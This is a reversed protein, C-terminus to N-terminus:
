HLVFQDITTGTLALIKDPTLSTALEFWESPLGADRRAAAIAYRLAFQVTIGLNYAPEGTAKSRLVGAPNSSKQLLRVRMDQPIDKASPPKYNWTRFNTLAGTGRDYRLEELLHYGLAMVFAGEIQGIDLLPNMSEGTDELIDVRIPQVQGTLVDIELEVACLAWVTYGRLDARKANYSASLDIRRQYCTQVIAEWPATRNDDRVPRIRELLTECARRASYAVLDTSISGGEIFANPSGNSTHAKVKVLALPIGLTHAVVQAVKTNVGQGIEPSGITVAVSGDVHYISVWANMGGFYRIPHGMPVIAIGRKKWRNTENYRDVAAKRVKFDVQEYFTPLLTAISSGPEMNALRVVQPSLGTVFAVHEMITEITAISEATGPSRLWTTSPSDSLVGRLRLRWSDDSYCNRFAERFLMTMAEYQSAGLDEHYTNSLRVIRGDAPRVDVEYECHGGIRKGIAQMTTEFPLVMRVPRRSRYAALACASAVWAGRSLKAGYSGGVPRVIVHISSQRLQLSKAIAVQVMHSSQTASYVEMGTGDESPICLCTQPELTFHAQSRFHCRGSIKVTGSTSGPRNYSRGVVDPELTLFRNTTYGHAFVDEITPLIPEGDSEGYSVNVLTAAETALEFTEAVVIGIPQGHYLVKGSCLIEERVNRFPFPSNIGGKLSAFDNQGPIDKASYFAVVGPVALAASPDLSLIQRRAVTALVFTAHLEDPRSPLDNVYVAEGATQQFAELKPLAQTLPWNSPYTDFSQAGTSLPRPIASGGSRVIPNAIRRDRPAIHLVFRYLLGVAVQRRYSADPTPETQGGALEANLVALTEQLIVNNFPNKGELYQETRSARSFKPGIGGFCLHAQEVNIKRVCLRLLFAANVHASANQARAAVKYTRFVCRDSDLPPLTVNLLVRRHMNFSLFQAPLLKEMAGSPSAITMEVGIAEFLVYLDSPFEPHRHKLTLNGAITGVHRVAPHAIEEVHRALEVCYTFRRDTRAAERLIEILESLTVNAGIIVSSGIWYNRLEEVNRVDIFLRLDKRRRYVGHGTNGSVLIYAGVGANEERLIDFIEDVTRVRFWRRDSPVFQLEVTEDFCSKASCDRECGTCNARPLDEIDPQCVIGLARRALQDEPPADIAFSKFADLIPRYGTCRCINGALGKEVDEMTVNGNNAELLSYMSMVMGPSCYGCQTGNFQALREQVPHYGTAKSGIGEVTLIDMGHCSFVSFLCSNVSFTIRQKTVPHTDVVNVICVGCGGELCMFKTGTLHAKTRIFTNLTTDIPLQDPSVQYLKGNITFKVHM